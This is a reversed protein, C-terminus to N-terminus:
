TLRNPVDSGGGKEKESRRRKRKILDCVALLFSLISCLGAILEFSDM